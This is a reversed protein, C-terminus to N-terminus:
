LLLDDKNKVVSYQLHTMLKVIKPKAIHLMTLLYQNFIMGYMVREEM